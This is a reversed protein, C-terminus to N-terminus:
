LLQGALEDARLARARELCVRARRSDGGALAAVARELLAAAARETDRLLGLEMGCRRCHQAGDELRARCNPCHEM